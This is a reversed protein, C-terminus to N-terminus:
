AAIVRENDGEGSLRNLEVQQPSPLLADQIAQKVPRSPLVSFQDHQSHGVGHVQRLADHEVPHGTPQYTM